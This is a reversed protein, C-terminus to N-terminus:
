DVYEIERDCMGHENAEDMMDTIWVFFEEENIEGGQTLLFIEKFEERSVRM